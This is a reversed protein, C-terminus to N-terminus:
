RLREILPLIEILKIIQMAEDARKQRAPSLLPKLSKILQTRKDNGNSNLLPMIQMIKGLMDPDIAGFPSEQAEPQKESGLLQEAMNSLRAFDEDSLGDLLANIDVDSM